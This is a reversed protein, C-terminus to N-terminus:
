EIDAPRKKGAKKQLAGELSQRLKEETMPKAVFASEDPISVYPYGSMYLVCSCPRVQLFLEGLQLGNMEPMIVDTLLFDIEGEHSQQLCLAEKGSSAFLVNMEMDDLMGLLVDRLLEENEVILVTRGQLTTNEADTVFRRM